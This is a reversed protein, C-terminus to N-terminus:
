GTPPPARAPHGYNGASCASWLNRGYRSGCGLSYTVPRADTVSQDAPIDDSGADHAPESRPTTRLAWEPALAEIGSARWDQTAPINARHHGGQLAAGILFLGLILVIHRVSKKEGTQWTSIRMGKLKTFDCGSFFMGIVVSGSSINERGM